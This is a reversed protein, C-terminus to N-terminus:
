RDRSPRERSAARRSALRDLINRTIQAVQADKGSLGRVWETCGTTVVTGGRMYCGLVAAGPQEVQKDSDEGLLATTVWGISNDRKSLGAPATGLIVFSDPTGDRHTPVPLGDELTFQCGDCEYGVIKASAGLSDGGKLGTGAFIWHDPRHITYAGAGDVFQEFFRHYGGYAFSVGTLQNEPRKVLRNSWMTSLLRHDGGRYVPDRKFNQKWSVLARGQDESRVQWFATNGSFFAVNGGNAIFAELHDRMPATWYEDHGVSLVLRYSKLMEPFFELDSNAAFDLRYGSREAWEVFPQEWNRWGSYKGTFADGPVFGAYPRDFSVRTGQGRPGTYLSSGGWTNYANYTNTTLQLLIKAERSPRAPRIIFYLEGVAAQGKAEGRLIASYYGSRWDGPVQLTLAAPWNCGHTSATEPIPHQAGPLGQQSWVVERRAGVRAIEVSYKRAATSIHLGIRDGAQYSIQDSYGEIIPRDRVAEVGAAPADSLAALGAVAAGKLM